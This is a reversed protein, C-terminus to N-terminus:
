DIRQGDTDYVGVAGFPKLQDEIESREGVVVVSAREPSLFRRATESVDQETVSNVRPIFDKYYDAPLQKM